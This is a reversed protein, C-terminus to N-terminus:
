ALNFHPGYLSSPSFANTNIQVNHVGVLRALMFAGDAVDARAAAKDERRCFRRSGLRNRDDDFQRTFLGDLEHAIDDVVRRLDAECYVKLFQGGNSQAKDFLQDLAKALRLALRVFGVPLLKGTM